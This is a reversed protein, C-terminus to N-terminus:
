TVLIIQQATKTNEHYSNRAVSGSARPEIRPAVFNKSFYHAQFATWEAEHTCIFLEKSSFIAAGTKFISLVATPIRQM